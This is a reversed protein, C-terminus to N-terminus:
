LEGETGSESEGDGPLLMKLEMGNEWLFIIDVSGDDHDFVGGWYIPGPFEGPPLLEQVYAALACGREGAEDEVSDQLSSVWCWMGLAVLAPVVLTSVALALWTRGRKVPVPRPLGSPPPVERSIGLVGGGGVTYVYAHRYERGETVQSAEVQSWAVGPTHVLVKGQHIYAVSRADQHVWKRMAWGPHLISRIGMYAFGLVLGVSLVNEEGTAVWAWVLVVLGGMMCALGVLLVWWARGTRQRAMEDAMEQRAPVGDACPLVPASLMVAPPAVQKDPPVEKGANAACFASLEQAREPSLSALPLFYSLGNKLVIILQNNKLAVRKILQWTMYTTSGVKPKEIMLGADTVTVFWSGQGAMVKVGRMLNAYLLGICVAAALLSVFAIMPIGADMLVGVGGGIAGALVGFCLALGLIQKKM